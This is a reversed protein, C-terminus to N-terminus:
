RKFKGRSKGTREGSIDEGRVLWAGLDPKIRLDRHPRRQDGAKRRQAERDRHRCWENLHGLIVLVVFIQQFLSNKLFCHPWNGYCSFYCNSNRSWFQCAAEPLITKLNVIFRVLRKKRWTAAAKERLVLWVVGGWELSSSKRAWKCFLKLHPCIIASVARHTSFINLSLTGDLDSPFIVLISRTPGKFTTTFIIAERNM